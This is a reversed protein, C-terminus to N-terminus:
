ANVVVAFVRPGTPGNPDPSGEKPEISMGFATYAEAPKELPVPIYVPEESHNFRFLGGSRAGQEDILWLQFTQDPNIAPLAAVRIVAERGDASMILEGNTQDDMAPTLPIRHADTQAVLRNYLDRAPDGPQILLLLGLLVVVLAAAAGLAFPLWVPRAARRSVAAQAAPVRSAALRRRLDDGLHPPALRAPTAVVLWDAMAEYEALLRRAELDTTLLAEVEAREDPDLAGFAYAPILDLLTNRDMM